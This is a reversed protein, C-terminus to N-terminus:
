QYIPARIGLPYKYELHELINIYYENYMPNLYM